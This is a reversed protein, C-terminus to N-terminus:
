FKDKSYYEIGKHILQYIRQVSYKFDYAIEAVTKGKIYSDYLVNRYPQDIKSLRNEINARMVKIKESLQEIVKELDIKQCILKEKGYNNNQKKNVTSLSSTKNIAETLDKLEDEKSSIYELGWRYARLEETAEKITM